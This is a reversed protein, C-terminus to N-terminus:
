GGKVAVESIGSVINNSDVSLADAMESSMIAVDIYGAEIKSALLVPDIYRVKMQNEPLIAQYRTALERGTTDGEAVFCDIDDFIVKLDDGKFFEAWDEGTDRHLKSNIFIRFNGSPQSPLDISAQSVTDYDGIGPLDCYLLYPVGLLGFIVILDIAAHLVGSVTKM